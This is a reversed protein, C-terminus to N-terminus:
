NNEKVVLRYNMKNWKSSLGHLFILNGYEDMNNSRSSKQIWTEYFNNFQEENLEPLKHGSIDWLKSFELTLLEKPEIDNIGMLEFLLKLENEDNIM